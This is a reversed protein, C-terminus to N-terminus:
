NIKHYIIKANLYAEKAEKEEKFMGLYKYKGNIRIRAEFKGSRKDLKYGKFTSNNWINQQHTVSRLNNISNDLKDENKHDIVEVCKGYVLYWALHHVRLMYQTIKDNSNIRLNISYYGGVIRKVEIGTPGYAKGTEQNYTYGREIAIKCKEERTM